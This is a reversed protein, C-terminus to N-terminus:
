HSNLPYRPTYHGLSEASLVQHSVDALVASSRSNRQLLQSKSNTEEIPMKNFLVFLLCRVVDCVANTYKLIYCHVASCSVLTDAKTWSDSFKKRLKRPIMSKFVANKEQNKEKKQPKIIHELKNKMKKGNNYYYYNFLRTYQTSKNAKYFKQVLITSTLYKYQNWNKRIKQLMKKKKNAFNKLSRQSQDTGTANIETQKWISSILARHM